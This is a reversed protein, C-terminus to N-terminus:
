GADEGAARRSRRWIEWLHIVLLTAVIGAVDVLWDSVKAWRGPVFRQHLEDSAAYLAAIVGASLKPRATLWAPLFRPCATIARWVLIALLGFTAAHASYDFLRDSVGIRRGPRPLSPQDSRYFIWAMWALMPLWCFVVARLIAPGNPRSRERPKERELKVDM